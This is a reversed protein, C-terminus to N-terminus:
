THNEKVYQYIRNVKPESGLTFEAEMWTKVIGKALERKTVLAGLTLINANNSKRAREASYTDGCLAAYAGHVKNAAICM